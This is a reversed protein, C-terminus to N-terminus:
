RQVVQINQMLEDREHQLQQKDQEWLTRQRDQDRQAVQIDALVGEQKQQLVLLRSHGAAAAEEAVKKAEKGAQLLKTPKSRFHIHAVERYHSRFSAMMTWCNLYGAKNVAYHGYCVIMPQLMCKIFLPAAQLQQQM